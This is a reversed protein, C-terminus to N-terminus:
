YAQGVRSVTIPFISAQLTCLQASVWLLYKQPPGAQRNPSDSMGDACSLSSNPLLPSPPYPLGRGSPSVAACPVSGRLLQRELLPPPFCFHHSTSQKVASRTAPPVWKERAAGLNRFLSPSRHSSHSFFPSSSDSLFILPGQLFM